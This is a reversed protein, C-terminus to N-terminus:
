DPGKNCHNDSSGDHPSYLSWGDSVLDSVKPARIAQQLEQGCKACKVSYARLGFPSGRKVIITDPDIQSLRLFKQYMGDHEKQPNTM